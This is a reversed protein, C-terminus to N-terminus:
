NCYEIGCSGRDLNLANLGWHLQESADNPLSVRNGRPQPQPQPEITNDHSSSMALSLANLDDAIDMEEKSAELASCVNSPRTKAKLELEYIRQDHAFQAELQRHEEYYRNYQESTLRDFPLYSASHEAERADWIHKAENSVCEHCHFPTNSANGLPDLCNSGCDEVLDTRIRHSCALQHYLRGRCPAFRKTRFVNSTNVSPAQLLPPAPSPTVEAGTSTPGASWGFRCSLIVNTSPVNSQPGFADHSFDM